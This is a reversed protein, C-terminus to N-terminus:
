HWTHRPADYPTRPQVPFRWFMPHDRESGASKPAYKPLRPPEGSSAADAATPLDYM